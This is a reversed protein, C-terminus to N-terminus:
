FHLWNICLRRQAVEKHRRVLGNYSCWEALLNICQKAWRPNLSRFGARFQHKHISGAGRGGRPSERSTDQASMDPGDQASAGSLMTWIGSSDWQICKMSAAKTRIHKQDNNQSPFIIESIFTHPLPTSPSFCRVSCQDWLSVSQGRIPGSQGKLHSCTSLLHPQWTHLLISGRLGTLGPVAGQWSSWRSFSSTTQVCQGVTMNKCLRITRDALICRKHEM